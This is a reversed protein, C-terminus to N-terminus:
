NQLQKDEVYIRINNHKIVGAFSIYCTFANCSYYIFLKNKVYFTAPELEKFNIIQNIHKFIIYIYNFMEFEELICYSQINWNKDLM